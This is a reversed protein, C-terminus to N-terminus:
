ARDRYLFTVAQARTCSGAPEFTTATMGDTVGNAAAWLVAEYYYEEADVDTFPNVTTEPEPSGAARWLFTVMEGRTVTRGPSFETDSTGDTVGNAVAWYVANYFYDDADVDTFVIPEEAVFTVSVEVQSYPMVFSYTGDSNRSVDVRSGFFDTVTLADVAYGEEPTVTLTVTAGQRATTRDATVTGNDPDPLTILYSPVPPVYTSVTVVCTATHGGASATITATGNGVATVVGDMVIAVKDDSTTWTVNETSNAPTLEATLTVTNPTYNSYLSAAAQSISLGELPITVTGDSGVTGSQGITTTTEGDSVTSGAGLTVTGDANVKSGTTGATITTNGVTVIAGEPLDFSAETEAFNEGLTIHTGSAVEIANVKASDLTAEAGSELKLTNVTVNSDNLTASGGKAVTVETVTTNGIRGDYTMTLQGKDQVQIGAIVANPNTYPTINVTGATTIASTSVVEEETTEGITVDMLNLTGGESIQIIPNDDGSGDALKWVTEPADNTGTRRLSLTGGSQVIVPNSVTVTASSRTGGQEQIFSGNPAVTIQGTFNITQPDALGNMTTNKALIFHIETDITIDESITLTDGLNESNFIITPNDRLYLYYGNILPTNSHALSGDSNRCDCVYVTTTSLEYYFGEKIATIADSVSEFYYKAESTYWEVVVYFPLVDRAQQSEIYETERYGRVHGYHNDADDEAMAVPVMAVVMVMAVIAALLRKRM